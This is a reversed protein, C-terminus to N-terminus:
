EGKEALGDIMSKGAGVGIEGSEVEEKTWSTITMMKWWQGPDDENKM